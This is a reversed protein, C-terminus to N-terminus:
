LPVWWEGKQLDVVLGPIILGHHTCMIAVVGTVEVNKFKSTNQMNVAKLHTCTSKEQTNSTSSLYRQYNDDETSYTHGNGPSFNDPNNNKHKKHAKFNGDSSCWFCHIYLKDQKWNIPLNFSVEPFAPSHVAHCGPVRHTLVKDIGHAQGSCKLSSLYWWVHAVMLLDHYKNPVTVPFANNIHRCLSDYYDYASIKSSLSEIHFERLVGFTFSTPIRFKDEVTAPFLGVHLLQ